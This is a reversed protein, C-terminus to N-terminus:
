KQDGTLPINKYDEIQEKVSPRFAWVAIFIFVTFFFMLGTVGANATLWDIM